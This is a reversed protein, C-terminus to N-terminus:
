RRLIAFATDLFLSQHHVRSVPTVESFEDGNQTRWKWALAALIFVPYPEEILEKMENSHGIRKLSMFGKIQFEKKM